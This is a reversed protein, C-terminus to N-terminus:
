RNIRIAIIITVAIIHNDNKFAGIIALTSLDVPRSTSVLINPRIVRASPTCNIRVPSDVVNGLRNPYCPRRTTGAM